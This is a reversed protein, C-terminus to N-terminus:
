KGMSPTKPKERLEERIQPQSEWDSEFGWYEDEILWAALRRNQMNKVRGFEGLM